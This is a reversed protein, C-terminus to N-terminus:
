RESMLRSTLHDRNAGLHAAELNSVPDGELDTHCTLLTSDAALTSVVEALLKAEPATGLAIRMVLPRELLLDVM